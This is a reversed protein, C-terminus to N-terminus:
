SLPKSIAHRMWSFIGVFNRPSGPRTRWINPFRTLLAMFNVFFPSITMQASATDSVSVRISARNETCSVPMPIGLSRCSATNLRNVWASPDVVRFYPPVPRPNDMEFCSTSIIPPLIPTSLSGPLPLRNQNVANKSFCVSQFSCGKGGSLSKIPKCTKHISSLAVFRIIKFLIIELKPHWTSVAALPSSPNPNNLDKESDSSGIFITNTSICIGKISPAWVALAILASSCILGTLITMKVEIPFRPSAFSHSSIPHAPYRNFGMRLISKISVNRAITPCFLNSWISFGFPTM